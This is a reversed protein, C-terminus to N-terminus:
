ELSDEAILASQKVSQNQDEQKSLGQINPLNEIWRGVLDSDGCDFDLAIIKFDTQNLTWACGQLVLCLPVCLWSSRVKAM